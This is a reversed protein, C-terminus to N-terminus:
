SDRSDRAIVHKFFRSAKPNEVWVEDALGNVYATVRNEENDFVVGISQRHSDGQSLALM